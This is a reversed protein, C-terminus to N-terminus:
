PTAAGTFGVGLSWEPSRYHVCDYRWYVNGVNAVATLVYAKQRGSTAAAPLGLALSLGVLALAAKKM